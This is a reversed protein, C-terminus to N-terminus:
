VIIFLMHFLSLLITCYVTGVLAAIKYHASTFLHKGNQKWIPLSREWPILRNSFYQFNASLPTDCSKVKYLLSAQSLRVWHVVRRGVVLFLQITNCDTTDNRLVVASFLTAIDPLLASDLQYEQKALKIFEKVRKDLINAKKNCEQGTSSLATCTAMLLLAAIATINKKM